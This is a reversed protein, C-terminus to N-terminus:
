EVRIYGEVLVKDLNRAFKIDQQTFVYHYLEYSNTLDKFHGIEQDNEDIKLRVIRNPFTISHSAIENIGELTKSYSIYRLDSVYLGYSVHSDVTVDSNPDKGTLGKAPNEDTRM